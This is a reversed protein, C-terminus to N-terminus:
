RVQCFAKILYVMNVTNVHIEKEIVLKKRLESLLLRYDVFLHISKTDNVHIPSNQHYFIINNEYNFTSSRCYDSHWCHRHRIGVNQWIIKSCVLFYLRTEYSTFLIHRQMIIKIYMYEGLEAHNLWWQLYCLM